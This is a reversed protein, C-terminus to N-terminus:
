REDKMKDKKENPKNSDGFQISKLLM